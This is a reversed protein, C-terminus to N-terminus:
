GVIFAGLLDNPLEQVGLFSITRFLRQLFVKSQPDLPCQDTPLNEFPRIERLDNVKSVMKTVEKTAFHLSWGGSPPPKPPM